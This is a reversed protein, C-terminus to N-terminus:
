NPPNQREPDSLRHVKIHPGPVMNSADQPTIFIYQSSNSEAADMMMRMSQKRNVADMYVDFEDLCYIPSSIGQWLALLLSIQSFSKEGGSLTKSDKHRTGKQLQDGTSVRVDLREKDHLFKLYGNYGRKHMHYTFHGMAYVSIFMRFQRWREIREDITERLNQKFVDLKSITDKATNYSQLAEKVQEMIEDVSAGIARNREDIRIELHRIAKDIQERSRRTEVRTPFAQMVEATWQQLTQEVILAHRQKEENRSMAKDLSDQYNAMHRLAKQRMAEIGSITRQFEQMKREHATEEAEYKQIRVMIEHIQVRIEDDQTRLGSFQSIYGQVREELKEKQDNLLQINVPEEERMSEEVQRIEFILTRIERELNYVMHQIQKLSQRASNLRDDAQKREQKLQSYEEDIRRLEAEAERIEPEIDLKFRLPGRYRDLVDTRKGDNKSTIKANTTYCAQVNRPGGNEMVRDAERRDAILITKEIHTAVILQRKVWEDQFELARLMTLYKEDPEGESFDFMDQKAVIVLTDSSQRKDLIASMLKRDEYNEVLFANLFKGLVIEMTESFEMHKLTLFRGMPGVPRRKWRTERQIDQLIQPVNRGFSRLRDGKQNRLDQLKQMTNRKRTEIEVDRGNFAKRAATHEGVLVELDGIQRKYDLLKEEKQSKKENLADLKAQRADNMAQSSAEQKATEADIEKQFKTVQQKASRVLENLEKIDNQIDTRRAEAEAKARFEARKGETNLSVNAHYEDAQRQVEAKEEEFQEVKRKVVVLKEKASKVQLESAELDKQAALHEKEKAVVQAWGQEANLKELQLELKDLELAEDYRLRAEDARAKLEPLGRKKRDLISEIISLKEQIDRYDEALAALQTGRMFLKYKEKSSSSNLFERANDQSLVTLPNDVQISLHDCIATLEERKTSIVKKSSNKIKYQGTGDLLLKRDVIITDGYVDHRFADPGRNTIHITILAAQAGERILSGLNKGRNTSSAKAGLAVTLATMIASKGSGNHGIVFNIKPGLDIRLYKHCMFDVMEVRAITGCPNIDIRDGSPTVVYSKARSANEKEEIRATLQDYDSDYDDDDDEEEEQLQMRIRRSKAPKRQEDRISEDESIDELNETSSFARKLAPPM